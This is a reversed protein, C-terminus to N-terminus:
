IFRAPAATFNKYEVIVVFRVIQSATGNYPRPLVKQVYWASSIKALLPSEALLKEFPARVKREFDFFDSPRGTPGLVDVLVQAARSMPMHGRTTGKKEPEGVDDGLQLACLRLNAASKSPDADGEPIGRALVMRGMEPVGAIVDTLAQLITTGITEM